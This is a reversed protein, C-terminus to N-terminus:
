VTIDERISDLTSDGIGSVKKLDDISNFPGNKERYAIIDKAKSEGIGTLTMLEERSATNINIKGTPTSDNSSTDSSICADNKLSNDDEKLCKDQLYKELEKTEIFNEIELNSYIIIVMEDIVKKSLNIVSTNANETLGGAMMIVDIIRNNEKVTYIGPSNVEGKIDVKVEKFTTKTSKKTLKETVVLEKDKEKFSVHRYVLFVIISSLLIFIVIGIIIEKRYRYTFTM